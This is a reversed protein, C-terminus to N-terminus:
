TLIFQTHFPSKVLRTGQQRARTEKLRNRWRAADRYREELAALFMNKLLNFEVAVPDHNDQPLAPAFSSSRYKRAKGITAQTTRYVPRVADNFIIEKNVYIPAKCRVALNVADSPRADVCVMEKDGPKALYICALYTDGIRQTVRVMRVEYCLADVLNRMLQYSFEDGRLAKMLMKVAMDGVIIPLLIDSECLVKLFITPNRSRYLLRGKPPSIHDIEVEKGNALTMFLHGHLPLLSVAEVAQAELYDSDEADGGFPLNGSSGNSNTDRLGSCRVDSGGSRLKLLVPPFMRSTLKVVSGRVSSRPLSVFLCYRAYISECLALTSKQTLENLSAEM